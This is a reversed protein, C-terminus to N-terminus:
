TKIRELKKARRTLGAAREAREARIRALLVSAPEDNPDQPVLQGAFAAKLINKRQATSQKLAHAVAIEQRAIEDFSADISKVIEALERLPPLPFPIREVISKNLAPQNNGSSGRRTEDYRSWLWYYVYEPPVDTESAWIAACNQNNTAEIDLISVQGRTKGEGIMGLLVSGSPNIQTSSNRLGADTIKERTDIIRSFRVEGSSVWPMEGNWYSPEKRSPTAGVAVHFCQGISSWVWGEPLAPLDTTDPTVPEAYKSQWDKPPAKGQEAFKALQKAEWRKRRETLIRALLQAGTERELGEGRAPSPNPLPPPPEHLANWIAELAAEQQTHWDSNWIRLVRFGEARLWADRTADYDQQEAHKGGDLEVILRKAFCVFDVIYRGLPQQRRFKFDAFRKARLHQWLAHEPPTQESRLERAHQQQKPTTLQIARAGEGGVGGGRPPLPASHRAARWIATLSGEVAAKLLAQRYQALKKQAAKLEAVGADLGSLLEELKEVIRTQETAPALPILRSVVDGSRVAPYSVGRQLPLLKDLFGESLVFYFLYKSAVSQAGRLVCFGTSAIGNTVAPAQAVARLNPRVTSFLVDGTLVIQRARSPAGAGLVLKPETVRNTDNDISSIDLYTIEVDPLRSPDSTAIPAIVDALPVIMWGVPLGEVLEPRVASPPSSPQQNRATKALGNM